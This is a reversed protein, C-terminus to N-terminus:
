FDLADCSACKTRMRGQGGLSSKTREGVQFAVDLRVWFPRARRVRGGSSMRRLGMAFAMEM